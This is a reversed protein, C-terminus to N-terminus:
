AILAQTTKNENFCSHRISYAEAWNATVNNGFYIRAALFAVFYRFSYVWSVSFVDESGQIKQQWWSESTQKRLQYLSDDM